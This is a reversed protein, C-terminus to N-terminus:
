SMGAAGFWASGYYPRFAEDFIHRGISKRSLANITGAAIWSVLGKGGGSRLWVGAEDRRGSATAFYANSLRRAVRHRISGEPTFARYGVSM